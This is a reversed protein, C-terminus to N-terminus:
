TINKPKSSRTTSNKIFRESEKRDEAIQKEIDRTVGLLRLFNPNFFNDKQKALKLWHAINASPTKVM